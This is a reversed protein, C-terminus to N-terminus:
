NNLQGIRQRREVTIGGFTATKEVEGIGAQRALWAELREPHPPDAEYLTYLLPVREELKLGCLAQGCRRTAQWLFLYDYADPIVPPVYIDVNFDRGAADRFVWDVAKLQPELAIRVPGEVVDETLYNRIAVGNRFFFLIFFILVAVRGQKSKWLEGLGIAFLLVFPLYIGTLYYGYVNGYNGQFALLGVLPTIIFLLLIPVGPERSARKWFSLVAAGSLVFFITAFVPWDWFTMGRFVDWYLRKREQLVEWFSLRFSNEEFLIKYFNQFLINEHRLNFVIQPALTLVFALSSFLLFRRNIRRKQWILFILMVPLFFVASAAEFHLSIGVLLSAVVWWWSSAGKVIKWMSWLLLLSSLLLPTPNSLWRSALFINYSFATIFAAALGAERSHFERGLFYVVFVALTTLFALFVAPVVPDGGGVLYFPAILYYYAPGLFIGALGTVPGILFLKGEHWLRWIVLADRGQDYYFGLLDHLRYTRVFFAGALVLALVLYIRPHGKVETTVAGWWKKVKEKM